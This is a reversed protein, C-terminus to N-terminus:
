GCNGAPFPREIRFKFTVTTGEEPKGDCTREALTVNSDRDMLLVTSSRTGYGPGAVLLPALLRETELGVGTDPLLADDPIYRDALIAFLDELPPDENKSLLEELIRKGRVVKPWPTDLLRNSLGHIGPEVLYPPDGRNSFCFLREADGFLLTFGNYRGAATKLTELFEEAPARGLLFETVLLGRSPSDSRRFCPDRYNAVASFRGYTTVGLWTGGRRLDKGALLKPANDWFSARATPRFHFEDRNAALIM